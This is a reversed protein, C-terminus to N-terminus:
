KDLWKCGECNMDQLVELITDAATLLFPLGLISSYYHYYEYYYYYYYDYHYDYHYYDNYYDHYYDCHYHYYNDNYNYYFRRWLNECEKLTTNKFKDVWKILNEKKNTQITNKIRFDIIIPLLKQCSKHFLRKKAEKQDLDVSGLQAIALKSMGKARARKSPWKCDNLGIKAKRFVEGVCPPTDSHPLGYAACVIAEVCMKGNEQKGLGQSLGFSLRHKINDILEQTIPYDNTKM